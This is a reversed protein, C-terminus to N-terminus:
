NVGIMQSEQFRFVGSAEENRIFRAEEEGFHDIQLQQIAQELAEGSLSETLTQRAAMYDEGSVRHERRQADLEDWRALAAEDLGMQQRFARLLEGQQAPDASRLERQVSELQLFDGMFQTTNYGQSGFVKDGYTDRLLEIYQAVKGTMPVSSDDLAGLQERFRRDVLEAAWIVEADEGFLARRTAWLAQYRDDPSQFSMFPLTNALWDEYRLMASLRELLQDVLEPFALALIQEVRALWNEPDVKKMLNILHDILKIQWVADGIRSLYKERVAAAIAANQTEPTQLAAAASSPAADIAEPSTPSLDIDGQQRDPSSLLLYLAAVAMLLTFVVVAVVRSNM